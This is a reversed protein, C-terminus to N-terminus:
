WGSKDLILMENVESYVHCFIFLLIYFNSFTYEFLHIMGFYVRRYIVIRFKNERARLYFQVFLNM